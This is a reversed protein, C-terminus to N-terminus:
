LLDPLCSLFILPLPSFNTPCFHRVSVDPLYTPIITPTHIHTHIYLRFEPSYTLLSFFFYLHLAIDDLHPYLISLPGM